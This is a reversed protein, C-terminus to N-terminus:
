AAERQRNARCYEADRRRRETAARAEYTGAEVQHRIAAANRMGLDPPAIDALYIIREVAPLIPLVPFNHAPPPNHPNRSPEHSM